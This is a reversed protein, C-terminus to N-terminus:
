NFSLLEGHGEDSRDVMWVSHGGRHYGCQSLVRGVWSGGTNLLRNM